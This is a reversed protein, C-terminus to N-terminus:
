GPLDRITYNGNFFTELFSKSFNLKTYGNEIKGYARQSIDLKMGMYEQSYGKLLRQNKIKLLISEM